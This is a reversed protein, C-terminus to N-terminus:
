PKVTFRILYIGIQYTMIGAAAGWLSIAPVLAALMLVAGTLLLRLLHQLQIYGSATKKEMNVAQNVARELLFVKAISVAAGLLAGWIFPLCSLSRYYLASALILIPTLICITLTVKKSLDALQM